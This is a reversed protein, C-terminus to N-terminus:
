HVSRVGRFQDTGFTTTFWNLLPLGNFPFNDFGSLRFCIARVGFNRVYYRTQTVHFSHFWTLAFHCRPLSSWPYSIIKKKELAFVALPRDPVHLLVRHLAHPHIDRRGSWRTHMCTCAHLEGSSRVRTGSPASAVVVYYIIHRRYM